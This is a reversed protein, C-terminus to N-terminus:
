GGVFDRTRGEDCGEVRWNMSGEAEETRKSRSTAGEFRTDRRSSCSSSGTETSFTANL